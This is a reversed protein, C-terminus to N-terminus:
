EYFLTYDLTIRDIFFVILLVTVEQLFDFRACYILYVARFSVNCAHFPM